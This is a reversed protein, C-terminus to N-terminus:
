EMSIIPTIKYFNFIALKEVAFDAQRVRSFGLATGAHHLAIRYFPKKPIRSDVVM